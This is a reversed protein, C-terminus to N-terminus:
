EVEGALYGTQEHIRRDDHSTHDGSHHGPRGGLRRDALNELLPGRLVGVPNEELEAVLADGVPFGVLGDVPVGGNEGGLADAVAVHDTHHQTVRGIGHQEHQRDDFAAGHRAHEVVVLAALHQGVADPQEVGRGHDRLGVQDLVDGFASGLRLAQDRDLLQAPQGRGRRGGVALVEATSAL